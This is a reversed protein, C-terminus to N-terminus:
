AGVRSVDEPSQVRRIYDEASQYGSEFGRFDMAQLQM